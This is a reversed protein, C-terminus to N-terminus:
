RRRRNDARLARELQEFRDVVSRGFSAGCSADRRAGARGCNWSRMGEVSPEPAYRALTDAGAYTLAIPGCEGPCHYLKIQYPGVCGGRSVRWWRFRSERWAVSWAWVPDVGARLAADVVLVPAAGVEDLSPLDPTLTWLRAALTLATIV